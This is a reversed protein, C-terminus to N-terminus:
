FPNLFLLTFMSLRKGYTAFQWGGPTPEKLIPQPITVHVYFAKQWLNGLQITTPYQIPLLCPFGSQLKHKENQCRQTEPLIAAPGDIV